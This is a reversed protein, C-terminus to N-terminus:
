VGVNISDWYQARSLSKVLSLSYTNKLREYVEQAKKKQHFLGFVTSGSGSVLSLESGLKYFLRKIDRLQPHEFFITEELDNELSGYDLNNLFKIIKSKKDESTLTSLRKYVSSTLISLEPFVLVCYFPNLDLLQTLEDGKGLGLCLGGEFFYPIDAGLIRGIDALEEKSCKLEWLTNLSHLTMAANSSGGGLGGGVPINKTVLIEVGSPVHLREKLHVAAQYIINRKDWPLGSHEGKLIIKGHTNPVFELIDYLDVCQFLTRLDHYNDPRKRIVELGLNVKAFSRVRM